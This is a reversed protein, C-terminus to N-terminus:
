LVLSERKTLTSSFSFACCVSKLLRLRIIPTRTPHFYSAVADTTPVACREAISGPPTNLMEVGRRLTNDHRGISQGQWRKGPLESRCVSVNCSEVEEKGSGCPHSICYTEHSRSRFCLSQTVIVTVNVTILQIIQKLVPM